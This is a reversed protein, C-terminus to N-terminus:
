CSLRGSVEDVAQPRNTAAVVMVNGESHTMLTLLESVLGGGNGGGRGRDGCLSDVEDMFILAPAAQRARVFVRSLTKETEGVYKSLVESCQSCVCVCVDVTM